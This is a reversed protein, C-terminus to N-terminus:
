RSAGSRSGGSARRKRAAARPRAHLHTDRGLARTRLVELEPADALSTIGLPGLSPRADGGLLKPALIWHLEDVLGARILAAALRGGGEVLVTTLGAEALLALGRGLDLDGMSGPVDILTSGAREIARRGRARPSTLVFTQADEHPVHVRANAPVRLRSDVLVRDPRRLVRDGKRASLDPDDALATASGVMVADVRRRLEHVFRRAEPGTIWRSEGSATAIRADLSTALKLTVFPRGRECVSSFGRHLERCEAERVGEEVKVGGKALARAGRGRVKAHPDRMGILVRAIGADLIADTCPPTRGTFCCPELTVAMSAGRVATAGHRAIASQLAVVEAHPGGPPKTCGRGLVRDGRFVTAGVSPNPHTTGLGRRGSAIAQRMMASDRDAGTV